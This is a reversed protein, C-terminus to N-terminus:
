CVSVTGLDFDDNLHNSELVCLGNLIQVVIVTTNTNLDRKFM